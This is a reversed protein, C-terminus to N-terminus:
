SLMIFYPMLGTWGITGFITPPLMPVAEVIDMDDAEVGDCVNEFFSVGDVLPQLSCHFTVYAFLDNNYTSLSFSSKVHASM